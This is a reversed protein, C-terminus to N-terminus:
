DLGEENAISRCLDNFWAEVVEEDSKGKYGAAILQDVFETNWDLEFYGQAPNAKNPITLDVVEIKPEQKEKQPELEKKLAELQAQKEELSPEKKFWNFM